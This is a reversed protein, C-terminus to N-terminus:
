DPGDCIARACAVEVSSGRAVPAASSLGRAERLVRRVDDRLQDVKEKSRRKDVEAPYSVRGAFRPRAVHRQAWKPWSQVTKDPFFNPIAFSCIVAATLLIALAKWRSIYLM